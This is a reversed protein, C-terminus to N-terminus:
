PATPVIRFSRRFVWPLILVPSFPLNMQSRSQTSQTGVFSHFCGEQTSSTIVYRIPRTVKRRRPFYSLIGSPRVCAVFTSPCHPSRPFRSLCSVCYACQLDPPFPLCESHHRYQIIFSERSSFGYYIHLAAGEKRRRASYPMSSLLTISWIWSSLRRVTPVFASVQVQYM